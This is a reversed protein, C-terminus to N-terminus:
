LTPREFNGVKKVSKGFKKTIRGMGKEFEEGAAVSRDQEMEEDFEKGCEGVEQGAGEFQRGSTPRM